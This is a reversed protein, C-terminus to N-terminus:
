PTPPPRTSTEGGKARNVLRQAFGEPLELEARDRDADQIVKQASDRLKINLEDAREELVRFADESSRFEKEMLIGVARGIIQQSVFGEELKHAVNAYAQANALAVAGHAAFIAGYERDQEEYVEPDHAYLNLAGLTEADIRLTFSLLSEFGEDAARASFAPWNADDSMKDVQFWMADKGIADLCPGEGTEYQIADLEIGIDDSSGITSIGSTKVLSVSAVDCAPITRVALDCIVDLTSEVTEHTLVLASLERFSSLLRKPYTLKDPTPRHDGTISRDIM